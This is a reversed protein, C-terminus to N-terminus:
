DGIQFQRRVEQHASRFLRWQQISAAALIRTARACMFLICSDFALAMDFYHLCYYNCFCM